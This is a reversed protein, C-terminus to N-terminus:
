VAQVFRTGRPWAVRQRIEVPTFLRQTGPPVLADILAKKAEVYEAETIAYDEPHGAGKMEDERVAAEFEEVLKAIDKM